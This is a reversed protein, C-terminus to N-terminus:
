NFAQIIAYILLVLVNLIAGASFAIIGFILGFVVAVGSSSNANLLLIFFLAALILSGFSILFGWWGIFIVAILGFISLFSFLITAIAWIEGSITKGKFLRRIKKPRLQIKGLASERIKNSEDVYDTGQRSKEVVPEIVKSPRMAAPQNDLAQGFLVSSSLMLLTFFIAHLSHNRM